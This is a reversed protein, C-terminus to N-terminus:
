GPEVEQAVPEAESKKRMLERVGALLPWTFLYEMRLEDDRIMSEAVRLADDHEDLLAHKALNFRRSKSAVRLNEVESRVEDFEGNMKHALWYNVQIVFASDEDLRDTPASRGIAKVLDYRHEQLLFYTRNAFSTALSERANVDSCLKFGLSWVLGFAVLFLTDAARRLYDANVDLEAGIPTTPRFSALKELYQSSALGGNHVICHRRQIAEQAAYDKAVAIDSIKFRKVFYDMWEALSGRLVDEIARDVVADRMDDISEHKTIDAWTYSRGSDDLAAPQREFCARALYNVLMELEGVLTVLLSARLVNAGPPAQMARLVSEIYTSAHGEPLSESVERMATLFADRREDQSLDEDEHSDNQIREFLGILDAVARDDVTDVADIQTRILDRARRAANDIEAAREDMYDALRLVESQRLSYTALLNSIRIVFLTDPSLPPDEEEDAAEDAPPGNEDHM